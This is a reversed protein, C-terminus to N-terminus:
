PFFFQSKKTLPRERTRNPLGACNRIQIKAPILKPLQSKPSSGNLKSVILIIIYFQIIVNIFAVNCVLKTLNSNYTFDNM